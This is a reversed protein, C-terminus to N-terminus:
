DNRVNDKEEQKVVDEFKDSIWKDYAINYEEYGKFMFDMHSKWNKRLEENEMWSKNINYLM